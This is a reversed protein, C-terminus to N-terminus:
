RTEALVKIIALNAPKGLYVFLSTLIKVYVNSENEHRLITEYIIPVEQGARRKEYYDALRPLEDRHVYRAFPTGLMENPSYGLLGSLALTMDSIQRDQIICIKEGSREILVHCSKKFDQAPINERDRHIELKELEILWEHLELLEKQQSEDPRAPDPMVDERLIM